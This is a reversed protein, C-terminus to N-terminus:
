WVGLDLLSVRGECFAGLGGGTHAGHVGREVLGLQGTKRVGLDVFQEWAAAFIYAPIVASRGSDGDPSSPHQAGRARTDRTEQSNKLTTM